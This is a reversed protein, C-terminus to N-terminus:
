LHLLQASLTLLALNMQGLELVTASLCGIVYQLYLIPMKNAGYVRLALRGTAGFILFCHGILGTCM